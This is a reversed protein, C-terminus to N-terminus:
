AKTAPAHTAKKAKKQAPEPPESVRSPPEKRKTSKNKARAPAPAAKKGRKKELESEETPSSRTGKRKVPQSKAPAPAATPAAKKKTKMEPEITDSSPTERTKTGAAPTPTGERHKVHLKLKPGQKTPTEPASQTPSTSSTATTPTKPDAESSSKSADTKGTPKPRPLNSATYIKKPPSPKPVSPREQKPRAGVETSGKTQSSLSKPNQGPKSISPRRQQPQPTQPQPPQTVSTRRHSQSPNPTSLQTTEPQASMQLLPSVSPGEQQFPSTRPLEQHQTFGPLASQPGQLQSRNQKSGGSMHLLPSVPPIMGRAWRVDLPVSRREQAGLTTGVCRGQNTFHDLLARQSPLIIPESDQDLHQSRQSSQAQAGQAESSRLQSDQLCPAQAMLINAPHEPFCPARQIVFPSGIPQQDLHMAQFNLHLDPRRKTFPSVQPQLLRAPPSQPGQPLPPRMGPQVSFSHLRPHAIGQGQAVVERMGLKERELQRIHPEQGQIIGGYQGKALQRIRPNQRQIMEAYQQQPLQIIRPDLGRAIEGNQEQVQNPPNPSPDSHVREIHGLSLPEDNAWMGCLKMTIRHLYWEPVGAAKFALLGKLWDNYEELDKKYLNELTDTTDRLNSYMFVVRERSGEPIKTRLCVLVEQFIKVHTHQYEKDLAAQVEPSIVYVYGYTGQSKYNAFENVIPAPFVAPSGSIVYKTDKNTSPPIISPRVNPEGLHTDAALDNRWPSMIGKDNMHFTWGKLFAIGAISAKGEYKEIFKWYNLHDAYSFYLAGEKRGATTTEAAHLVKEYQMLSM